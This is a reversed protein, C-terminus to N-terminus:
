MDGFLNRLRHTGLKQYVASAMCHLDDVEGTIFPLSYRVCWDLFEPFDVAGDGNYDVDKWFAELRSSSMVTKDKAGFIEMIICEFEQRDITGSGDIDYKQYFYFADQVEKVGLNYKDSLQDFMKTLQDRPVLNKSFAVAQTWAMYDEFTISNPDSCKLARLAEDKLAEDLETLEHMELRRKLAEFFGEVTLHLGQPGPVAVGLFIHHLEQIDALPMRLRLSIQLVESSMADKPPPTVLERSGQDARSQPRSTSTQRKSPSRGSARLQILERATRDDEQSDVTATAISHRRPGGLGAWKRAARVVPLSQSPLIGSLDDVSIVDITARRERNFQKRVPSDSKWTSNCSLESQSSSKALTTEHLPEVHVTKQEEKEQKPEEEKESRWSRSSTQSPTTQSLPDVRHAAPPLKPYPLKFTSVLSPLPASVKPFKRFGERSTLLGLQRSAPRSSPQQGKKPEPAKAPPAAPERLRVRASVPQRAVVASM